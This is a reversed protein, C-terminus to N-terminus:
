WEKIEMKVVKIKVRALFIMLIISVIRFVLTKVDVLYSTVKMSILNYQTCPELIKLTTTLAKYRKSHIFTSLIM